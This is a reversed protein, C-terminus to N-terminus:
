HSPLLSTSSSSITTNPAPPRWHLMWWGGPPHLLSHSTKSLKRINNGDDQLTNRRRARGQKGGWTQPVVSLAVPSMHSHAAVGATWWKKYANNTQHRRCCSISTGEQQSVWGDAPQGHSKYISLYNVVSLFAQQSFLRTVSRSACQCCDRDNSSGGGGLVAPRLNHTANYNNHACWECGGCGSVSQVVSQCVCAPEGPAQAAWGLCQHLGAPGGSSMVSSPPGQQDRLRRVGTIRALHWWHSRWAKM